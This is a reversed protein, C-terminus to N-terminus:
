LTAPAGITHLCLFVFLTTYSVKSLPFVRHTAVLLAVGVFLLVNELWWDSRDFPHFALPVWLAALLGALTGLYIKRSL